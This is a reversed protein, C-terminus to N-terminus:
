WPPRTRPLAFDRVDLPFRLRAGCTVAVEDAVAQVDRRLAKKRYRLVPITARAVFLNEREDDSEKQEEDDHYGGDYELATTRRTLMLLDAYRVVEGAPTDIFLPRNVLPEPLGSLVVVMRLRSEGSSRARPSCLNVAMRATCVGPWRRHRDVYEELDAVFVLGSATFADAVTVSEVLPVCRMLDFCTREVSTALMGDVEVLDGDLVQRRGTTGARLLQAGGLSRTQVLPAVRWPPPTWVGHAWAATLGAAACGPLLVLRLAALRVEATDPTSTSVYVGTLVRRWQRSDLMRRTLGARLAETVTFPGELLEPPRLAPRPM